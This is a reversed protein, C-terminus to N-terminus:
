APRVPHEPRAPRAPPVPDVGGAFLPQCRCIRRISLLGGYLLGHRKLSCITYESCTPYFRCREGALPSLLVQWFRCLFVLLLLLGKQLLRLPFLLATLLGEVQSPLTESRSLEAAGESLEATGM